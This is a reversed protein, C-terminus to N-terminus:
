DNIEFSELFKLPNNAGGENILPDQMNLAKEWAGYMPNPLIIYRVGFMEQFNEVMEKRQLHSLELEFQDDFDALNDGIYLFVDQLSSVYRRRESKNSTLDKLLVHEPDTIVGLNQLNQLTPEIHEVSRNSIYYVTIGQSEAHRIFDVAGPVAKASAKKVWEAWTAKEFNKNNKILYGNYPSNDLVTEDLDMVVIGSSGASNKAFHNVNSKAQNFAQICLATYEAATQQWIVASEKNLGANNSSKGKSSSANKTPQCAAFGLLLIATYFFIKKM